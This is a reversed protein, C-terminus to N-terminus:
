IRICGFLHASDLLLYVFLETQKSEQYEAVCDRLSLLISM